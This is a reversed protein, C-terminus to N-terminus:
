ASVIRKIANTEGVAYGYSLEWVKNVKDNNADAFERYVITIGTEPDPFIRYDIIKELADDPKIPSTALLIASPHVAFGLLKENNDPICNAEILKFSAKNGYNLNYANPAFGHTAAGGDNGWSKELSNTLSGDLILSRGSFSWNSKTCITKLDILDDNDFAEPTVVIKNALSYNQQSPDFAVDGYNSATVISLIDTILKFALNEGKLRGLQQPDFNPMRAKEESTYSLKSFKRKDVLIEKSLTQTNSEVEYSGEFDQIDEDDLPYYPVVIKNTGKLPVNNFQKSFINLPLLVRKFGELVEIAIEDLNLNEAFQNAM